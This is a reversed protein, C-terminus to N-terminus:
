DQCTKSSINCRGSDHQVARTSSGCLALLGAPCALGDDTIMVTAHLVGLLKMTDPAVAAENYCFTLLGCTSLRLGWRLLSSVTQRARRVLSLVCRSCRKAIAALWAAAQRTLDLASAQLM